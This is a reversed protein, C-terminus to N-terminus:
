DNNYLSLFQPESKVSKGLTVPSFSSGIGTCIMGASFRNKKVNYVFFRTVAVTKITQKQKEERFQMRIQEQSHINLVSFSYLVFLHSASFTIWLHLLRPEM